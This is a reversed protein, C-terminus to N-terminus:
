PHCLKVNVEVAEEWILVILSPVPVYYTAKLAKDLKVLNVLEFYSCFNINGESRQIANCFPLNLFQHATSQIWFPFPFIWNCTVQCYVNPWYFKRGCILLTTVIIDTCVVAWFLPCERAMFDCVLHSELRKRSLLDQSATDSDSLDYSERAYCHGYLLM